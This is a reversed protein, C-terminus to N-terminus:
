LKLEKERSQCARTWVRDPKGAPINRESTKTGGSSLVTTKTPPTTNPNGPGTWEKKGSDWKFSICGLIEEEMKGAVCKTCKACITNNWVSAGGGNPADRMNCPGSSQGHYDPFKKGKNSEDKHGDFFPPLGAPNYWAGSSVAQVLSLTGDCADKPPNYTIDYCSVTQGGAGLVQQPPVDCMRIKIDFTGVPALGFTDIYVLPKNMVYVYLCNDGNDYEIPDKSIFRGLRTSYLRRRYLILGTESDLIQGTFTRNWNYDSSNKTSFNANLWTIKGFADYKMREVVSGSTDVLAIVNWNPDALSYLREEGKERLVLDDIYRLGWVYSTVESGTQSEVEQWNENFFSKTVISDVTKKI